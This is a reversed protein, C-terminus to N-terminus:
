TDSLTLSKLIKYKIDRIYKFSHVTELKVGKGVYLLDAACSKPFRYEFVHFIEILSLKAILFLQVITVFPAIEEKAVIREFTTQQLHM